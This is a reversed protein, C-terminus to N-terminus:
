QIDTVAGSKTNVMTRKKLNIRCPHGNLIVIVTAVDGRSFGKEIVDNADRPFDIWRNDEARWQWVKRKSNQSSNKFYLKGSNIESSHNTNIVDNWSYSNTNASASDDSTCWYTGSDMTKSACLKHSAKVTTEENQRRLTERVLMDFPDCLEVDYCDKYGFRYNSKNGNPWRVYIETPTKLRYVTGINGAKGDQDGWKWDPGRRVLCGTAIKQNLLIRPEDCPEVDYATEFGNWGYRYRLALGTDWEVNIWGNRTGHGVVTGAGRGDQNKWMWDPGRKVRTGVNPAIPDREQFEMENDDEEETEEVDKPMKSCYVHTNGIIECIDELDQDSVKKIRSVQLKILDKSFRQELPMNELVKSAMEINLAYRGFQRAEHFPILKGGNSGLMLTGLFCLDPDNGVPICFIPNMNSIRKVRHIVSECVMNFRFTDLPVDDCDNLGTPKGDTIIVIRTRVHFSGINNYSTAQIGSLSLVVGAELPSGGECDLEDVCKSITRHDNSYYQIVRVERGFTIVMVNEAISPHQSFENIIDKFATKMQQLATGSM